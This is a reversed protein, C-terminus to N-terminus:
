EDYEPNQVEGIFLIADTNNETIAFVFPKNVFFPVKQPENGISTTTFTISTVAAAETGTENVDIFSKHKVASIYLEVDSIKSFDAVEPIFAKQMGMKKLLDNLGAEFEFKFRPMTIDVRDTKEFEDMWKKWSAASLEDIVNQSNKGTEPLFIVMNYQGNGYPMKIAKFLSNATYDLNELKNMMPVKITTGDPKNFDLEHTGEEDFENTWIGNFYIANLLVMRDLPDLLEIIKTIKDNTKETVWDNITNVAGPSSFDLREIEAEYVTKNVDLFGPKVEMIDAYFIANAIEFFVDEDLSQLASILMKYSTNIEDTTLGNLKMAKEMETKTDGDAGKYAMALAVSISLPSIMINEDDNDERVKQFMELGFENDAEILKASKEDLDIINNEPPQVDNKQCSSISTLMFALLLLIITKM